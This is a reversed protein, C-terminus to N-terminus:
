GDSREDGSGAPALAIMGVHHDEIEGDPGLSFASAILGRAGAFPGDGGDIRWVAGGRRVGDDAPGLWGSGVTAFRLRHGSPAFAITGAQQFTTPGTFVLEAELRAEGGRLSRTSADLGEPGIRSRVLAGIARTRAELINGDIGAPRADGRFRLAYVIQRM